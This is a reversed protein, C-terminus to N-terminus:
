DELIFTIECTIRYETIKGDEIKCKQEVVHLGTIGRLTSSARSVGNKLADGFSEPSSATIKTVRAVAM